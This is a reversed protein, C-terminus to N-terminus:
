GFWKQPCKASLFLYPSFFFDGLEKVISESSPFLVSCLERKLQARFNSGIGEGM